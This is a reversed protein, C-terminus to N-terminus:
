RSLTIDIMKTEKGNATQYIEIKQHSDDMFTNVQRMPVMKGQMPDYGGGKFEISKGDASAAGQMTLIGTGMNDIWTSNYMKTGNDYAITGLGEFPMGMMNGNYHTTLYRGGMIMENHVAATSTKPPQSPDSYDTVQAKWEGASKAMMKQADGPTMYDIWPKMAAQQQPTMGNKNPTNQAIASVTCGIFLLLPFFSKM